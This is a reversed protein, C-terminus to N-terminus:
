ARLLLARLLLLLLLLLVQLILVSYAALEQGEGSRRRTVTSGQDHLQFQAALRITSTSIRLLSCSALDNQTLRRCPAMVAHAM